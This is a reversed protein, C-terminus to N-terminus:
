MCICHTHIHKHTCAYTCIHIHVFLRMGNAAYLKLVHVVPPLLRPNNSFTKLLGLTVGLAQNQRAKSGFRHDLLCYFLCYYILCFCPQNVCAAADTKEKLM